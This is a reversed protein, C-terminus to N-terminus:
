SVRGVGLRTETVNTPGATIETIEGLPSLEILLVGRRRRGLRSNHALRRGRPSQALAWKWARHNRSAFVVLLIQFSPRLRNSGYTEMYSLGYTGM